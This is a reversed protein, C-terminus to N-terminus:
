PSPRDECYERSGEVTSTGDSWTINLIAKVVFGAEEMYSPDVLNSCSVEIKNPSCGVLLVLLGAVLVM